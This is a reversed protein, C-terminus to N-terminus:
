GCARLQERLELAWDSLGAVTSELLTPDVALRELQNRLAENARRLRSRVGPESLGLIEALQPGTMSEWHYLELAIQFDLPIRRLAQLLLKKEGKVAIVASPSPSLDEISQESFDPDTPGRKRKRLEYRLINHATAFLFTRFSSRREFRERAEICALLTQQVLDDAGESVKNRFFGFLSSFHRNFLESGARKDGASWADLLDFDTQM